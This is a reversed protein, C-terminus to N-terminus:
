AERMWREVQEAFPHYSQVRRLVQHWDEIRYWMGELRYGKQTLTIGKEAAIERLEKITM